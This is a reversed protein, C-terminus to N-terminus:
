IRQVLCFYKIYDTKFNISLTFLNECVESYLNPLVRGERRGVNGLWGGEQYENPYRGKM